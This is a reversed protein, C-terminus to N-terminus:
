IHLDGSISWQLLKRVTVGTSSAILRPQPQGLDHFRQSQKRKPLDSAMRLVAHIVVHGIGNSHVCCLDRNQISWVIPLRPQHIDFTDSQLVLDRFINIGPILRNCSLFRHFWHSGNRRLSPCIHILVLFQSPFHFEQFVIPQFAYVVLVSVAQIADPDSDQVCDAPVV